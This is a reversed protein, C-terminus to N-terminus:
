VAQVKSASTIKNTLQRWTKNVTTSKANRTADTYSSLIRIMPCLKQEASAEFKTSRSREHFCMERVKERYTHGHINCDHPLEQSGIEATATTLVGRKLKKAEMQIAIEIVEQSVNLM